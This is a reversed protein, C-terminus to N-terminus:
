LDHTSVSPYIEYKFNHMNEWDHLQSENFSAKVFKSISGLEGEEFKDDDIINYPIFNINSLLAGSTRKHGDFIYMFYGYKVVKIPYLANFGLDKIERFIDKANERALQKVGETPFFAKPSAWFKSFHLGNKWLTYFELILKVVGEVTTNSTDIVLNYNNLDSCDVGYIKKFRRNEVFRRELLNEAKSKLDDAAPEETREKDKLVRKAAIEPPVTLYLKFSKNVFFWALRSDLVFNEDLSSVNKIKEDIIQDIEINNESYYNLQLTDMGKERAIERQMSGTSLYKFNLRKCLENAVSSKGSGLDGTISINYDGM